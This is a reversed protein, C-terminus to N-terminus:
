SQIEYGNISVLGANIQAELTELADEILAFKFSQGITDAQSEILVDRIEQLGAGLRLAGIMDRMLDDKLAQVNQPFSACNDNDCHEARIMYRESRFHDGLVQAVPKEGIIRVM